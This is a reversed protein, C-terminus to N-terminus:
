LDSTLVVSINTFVFLFLRSCLCLCVRVRILRLCLVSVCSVFVSVFPFCVRSYVCDCFLCLATM